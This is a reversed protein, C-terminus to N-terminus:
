ERFDPGSVVGGCQVSSVGSSCHWFSLATPLLSTPAPTTPNPPPPHISPPLSLSLLQIVVNENVSCLNILRPSRARAVSSRFDELWGPAVGASGHLNQARTLREAIPVPLGLRRATERSAELQDAEPEAVGRRGHRRRPTWHRRGTQM